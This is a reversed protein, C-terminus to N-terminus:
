IMFLFISFNQYSIKVFPLFFIERESLKLIDQRFQTKSEYFFDEEPTRGTPNLVFRKKLYKGVTLKIFFFAFLMTEFFLCPKVQSIRSM